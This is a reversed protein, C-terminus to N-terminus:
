KRKPKGDGIKIEDLSNMPTTSFNGFINFMKNASIIATSNKIIDTQSSKSNGFYWIGDINEHKSM